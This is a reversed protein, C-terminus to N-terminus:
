PVHGCDSNWILRFFLFITTYEILVYRMQESKFLNMKTSMSNVFMGTAKTTPVRRMTDEFTLFKMSCSLVVDNMSIRQEAMEKTLWTRSLELTARGRLISSAQAVSERGETPPTVVEYVLIRLNESGELEIMFEENWAPEISQSIIKTKAKRFYHGYSDIEVVVYLDDPRTLGSLRDVRFVLDGVLLPEDRPSRM